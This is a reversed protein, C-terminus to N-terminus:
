IKQGGDLVRARFHDSIRESVLVLVLSSLIAMMAKQYELAYISTSLVYGIGGAGVAGLLVSARVNVEFRFLANALLSPFIQPIVAYRIVQAHTAGTVSISELLKPDIEETADALLKALMGVSAISLALLGPLAGLGMAAVAFLLLVIEPLGREVGIMFRMFNRLWRPAVNSSAALACPVSLLTGLVTASFAMVVTVGIPQLMAPFDSWSPPFFLRLLSLGKGIGMVFAAPNAGCVRSALVILVLLVLLYIHRRVGSVSQHTDGRRSRARRLFSRLTGEHVTVSM